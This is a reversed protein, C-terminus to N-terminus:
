AHYSLNKLENNGRRDIRQYGLPKGDSTRDTISLACYRWLKSRDNFRSPDEIWVEKLHGLSLLLCLSRVDFEDRKNPDSGILKNYRPECVVLREVHPRLLKAVWRALPSSELTLIVGKRGLAAVREVLHEPTTRFRVPRSHVGDPTLTGLVTTSSHLDLAAFLTPTNMTVLSDVRCPAFAV